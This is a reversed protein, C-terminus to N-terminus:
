SPTTSRLRQRISTAARCSGKTSRGEPSMFRSTARAVKDGDRELIRRQVGDLSSAKWEVEDAFSVAREGLDANILMLSNGWVHVSVVRRQSADDLALEAFAFHHLLTM